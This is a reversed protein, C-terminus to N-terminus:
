LASVVSIVRLPSVLVMVNSTGLVQTVVEDAGDGAPLRRVRGRCTTTSLPAGDGHGDAVADLAVDEVDEALRKVNSLRFELDAFAPGDVALGRAERREFAGGLHQFGADLHDVKEGYM